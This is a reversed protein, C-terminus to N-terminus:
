LTQLTPHSFSIIPVRSTYKEHFKTKSHYIICGTSRYGFHIKHLLVFNPNPIRCPRLIQNGDMTLKIKNFQLILIYCLPCYCSRPAVRTSDGAILNSGLSQLHIPPFQQPEMKSDRSMSENSPQCDFIFEVISLNALDAQVPSKKMMQPFVLIRYDWLWNGLFWLVKLSTYNCKDYIPYNPSQLIKLM